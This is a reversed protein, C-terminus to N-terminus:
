QQFRLFIRRAWRAVRGYNKATRFETPANVESAPSADPAVAVNTANVPICRGLEAIGPNGPAALLELSPDDHTLKWALAHERAGGGVLM